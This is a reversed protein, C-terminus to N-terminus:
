MYYEQFTLRGNVKQIKILVVIGGKMHNRTNEFRQFQTDFNGKKYSEYQSQYIGFKSNDNPFARNILGNWEYYRYSRSIANKTNDDFLILSAEKAM